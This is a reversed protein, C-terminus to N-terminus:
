GFTFQRIMGYSAKDELTTYTADQLVKHNGDQGGVICYAKDLTEGSEGKYTHM